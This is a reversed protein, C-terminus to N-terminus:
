ANVRALGLHGPQRPLQEVVGVQPRQRQEVRRDDAVDGLRQGGGLQLGAQRELDQKRAGARLGAVAGLARELLDARRQGLEALVHPDRQLRADAGRRELLPQALAEVDPMEDPVAAEAVVARGAPQVEFAGVAGLRDARRLEPM